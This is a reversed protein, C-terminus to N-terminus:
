FKHQTLHENSLCLRIGRAHYHLNHDKNEITGAVGFIDAPVSHSLGKAHIARRSRGKPRLERWTPNILMM